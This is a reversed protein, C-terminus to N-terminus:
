FHFIINVNAKVSRDIVIRWIFLRLCKLESHFKARWTIALAGGGGYLAFSFFLLVVIFSIKLGLRMERYGATAAGWHFRSPWM